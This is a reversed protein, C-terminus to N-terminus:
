QYAQPHVRMLLCDMLRRREPMSGFSMVKAWFTKLRCNAVSGLSERSISSRRLCSINWSIRYLKPKRVVATLRCSSFMKGVVGHLEKLEQAVEHLVEVADLVLHDIVVMDQRYEGILEEVRLLDIQRFAVQLLGNEDGPVLQHV